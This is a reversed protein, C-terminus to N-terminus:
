EWTKCFEIWEFIVGLDGSVSRQLMAIPSDPDELPLPKSKQVETGTGGSFTSPTVSKPLSKSLMM